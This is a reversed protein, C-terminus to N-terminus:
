IGPGTSPTPHITTWTHPGTVLQLRHAPCLQSLRPLASITCYTKHQKLLLRFYIISTEIHLSEMLCTLGVRLLTTIPSPEQMLFQVDDTHTSAYLWLTHQPDTRSM